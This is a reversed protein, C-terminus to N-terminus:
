FPFREGNNGYKERIEPNVWGKLDYQLRAWDGPQSGDRGYSAMKSHLLAYDAENQKIALSTADGGYSSAKDGRSRALEGMSDFATLPMDDESGIAGGPGTGKHKLVCKLLYLIVALGIFMIAVEIIYPNNLTSQISAVADGLGAKAGTVVTADLAPGIM